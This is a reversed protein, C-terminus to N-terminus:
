WRAVSQFVLSKFLEGRCGLVRARPLGTPFGLPQGPGEQPHGCRSIAGLRLGGGRGSHPLAERRGGRWWWFRSMELGLQFAAARLRFAVSIRGLEVRGWLPRSALIQLIQLAPASSRSLVMQAALEPLSMVM